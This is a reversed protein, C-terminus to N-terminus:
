DLSRDRTAPDGIHWDDTGASDVEIRRVGAREALERVVIEASPSRCINGTCVFCIRYSSSMGNM